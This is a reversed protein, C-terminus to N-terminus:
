VGLYHDNSSIETGLSSSLDLITDTQPHVLSCKTSSDEMGILQKRHGRQDPHSSVIHRHTFTYHETSEEKWMLQIHCM